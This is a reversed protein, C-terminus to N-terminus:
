IVSNIENKDKKQLAESIFKTLATGIGLYGATGFIGAFAVSLTYIGYQNPGLLRTIVVLAIGTMLFTLIKGTLVYSATNASKSGVSLTNSLDMKKTIFDCKLM